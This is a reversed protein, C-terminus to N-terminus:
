RFILIMSNLIPLNYIGDIEIEKKPSITIEEKSVKIKLQESSDEIKKVLKNTSKEILSVSYDNNLQAIFKKGNLHIKTSKNKGVIISDKNEGVKIERFEVNRELYSKQFGYENELTGKINDEFILGIDTDIVQRIEQSVSFNDKNLENKASTIETTEKSMLDKRLIKIEDAGNTIYNDLQFINSFNDM